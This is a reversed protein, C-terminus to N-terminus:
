LNDDWTVTTGAMQQFTSEYYSRGEQSLIYSLPRKKLSAAIKEVHRPFPQPYEKFFCYAYNWAREMQAHTLHSPAKLAADLSAFYEDWSDSDLTFGKRRDQGGHGNVLLQIDGAKRQQDAGPPHVASECGDRGSAM